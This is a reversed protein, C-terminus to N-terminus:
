SRSQGGNHGPALNMEGKQGDGVQSTLISHLTGPAL